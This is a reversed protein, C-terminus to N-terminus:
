AAAPRLASDGPSPFFRALMADLEAPDMPKSLFGDMGADECALRGTELVDATLAVIKARPRRLKREEARIRRTAEVGDLGPMHIDTLLLDFGGERMAEVAGEGSTVERVLHGRRRLLERTLLANVPNDEALLVHLGGNGAPPPPPPLSERKAARGLEADPSVSRGRLQDILANQRVPKVLYGSFGQAKLLDLKGRAAPAILVIAPIHAFPKAPLNPEADTGADVLMAGIHGVGGSDAAEHALDEVTGGAARIQGTLGERLVANRTVIAIRMGSLARNAHNSVPKAVFAPVTFRFTSGGGPATDIGIEGGMAEVLRKSIALGLGSGGYRRAHSSDAQVFESFIEARKELAVGVGTDRVEFRVMRRGQIEAMRVDICVGGRETFKIANGVLNTLVQRLRMGDTRISQPVEPVVVSLLEIGKAHVRTGLLEVVAEVVNRLDVEEEELTMMGSEIKSFDLIDGILSLLAEGSQRIAEAYTRQESRLDTELLLRAM